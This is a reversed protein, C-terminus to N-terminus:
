NSPSSLLEQAVTDMMEGLGCPLSEVPGFEILRAELIPNHTGEEFVNMPHTRQNKEKDSRLGCSLREGSPTLSFFPSASSVRGPIVVVAWEELDGGATATGELIVGAGGCGLPFLFRVM